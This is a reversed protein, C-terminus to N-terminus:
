KLGVLLFGCAHFNIDTDIIAIINTPSQHPSGPLQRHVTSTRHGLSRHVRSYPSCADCWGAVSGAGRSPRVDGQHWRRGDDTARHAEPLDRDGGGLADEDDRRRGATERRVAPQRALAAGGVCVRHRRRDAANHPYRGARGSLMCARRWDADSIHFDNFDACHTMDSAINLRCFFINPGFLLSTDDTGPGWIATEALQSPVEHSFPSLDARRDVTLCRENGTAADTRQLEKGNSMWDDGDKSMKRWRSLVNRERLDKGM